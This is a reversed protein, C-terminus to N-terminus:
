LDWKHSMDHPLMSDDFSFGCIVILTFWKIYVLSSFGHTLVIGSHGGGVQLVLEVTEFGLKVFRFVIIEICAGADPVTDKIDAINEASSFVRGSLFPSRGHALEFFFGVFKVAGDPAPFEQLFFRSRERRFRVRGLASCLPLEEGAPFGPSGNHVDYVFGFGSGGPDAIVPIEEGCLFFHQLGHELMM